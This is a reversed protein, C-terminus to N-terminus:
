LMGYASTVISAVSEQDKGTSLSCYIYIYIYINLESAVLRKIASEWVRWLHFLDNYLVAPRIM